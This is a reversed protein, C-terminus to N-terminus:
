GIWKLAMILAAFIGGWFFLAFILQCRFALKKEKLRKQRMERRVIGALMDREGQIRAIESNSM